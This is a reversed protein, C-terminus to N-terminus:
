DRRAFKKHDADHFVYQLVTPATIAQGAVFHRAAPFNMVPLPSLVLFILRYFCFRARGPFIRPPAGGSTHASNARHLGRGAAM